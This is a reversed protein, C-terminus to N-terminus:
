TSPAPAEVYADLMHAVIEAVADDLVHTNDDEYVATGGSIAIEYSPYYDVGPLQALREACVRLVSKSYGNAVQADPGTFTAHLPVPSVTLIVRKGDLLRFAPELLSLAEDVDFVVLEYRGSAFIHRPPMRNLYASSETDYWAEVLGLTV